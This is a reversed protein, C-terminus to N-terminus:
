TFPTHLPPLQVLSLFLKIFAGEIFQILIIQLVFSLFSHVYSNIKHAAEGFHRLQLLYGHKICDQSWSDTSSVMGRCPMTFLLSKGRRSTTIASVGGLTQTILDLATIVMEAIKLM